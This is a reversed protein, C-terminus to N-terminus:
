QSKFLKTAYHGLINTSFGRGLVTLDLRSDDSLPLSADLRELQCSDINFWVVDFGGRGAICSDLGHDLKDRAPWRRIIGSPSNM